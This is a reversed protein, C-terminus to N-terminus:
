YRLDKLYDYSIKISEFPDGPTQDQEVIFHKAGAKRSAQFIKKFDLSGRGVEAFGRGPSDEMDKVHLLAFRGPYRDFYRLPDQEARVVWYLDMEMTVLKPDTEELLIDYPLRGDMAEFEFAHNHYAFVLGAKRCDSGFRNFLEALRKYDDSSRRVDQPLSPCVLYKQGLIKATEITKPLDDRFAAFGIHASPSRLNNNKLVQKVQRPTRDYYGAFEVEKFGIQAVRALSGEFDKQMENRITYLQLGVQKIRRGNAALGSPQMLALAAGGAALNLFDRRKM